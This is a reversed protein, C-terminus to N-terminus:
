GKKFFEIESISIPASEPGNTALIRITLSDIKGATVSTFTQADKVDQVDITISTGDAFDFALKSPRRLDTFTDASGPHVIVAGLDFTEKFKVTFTSVKDNGQWDTNTFTDFMQKVPHGDVESSATVETPRIPDLKPNVFRQIKDVIGPIGGSVFSNVTGQVSPIALYGVLGLGVLAALVTRVLGLGTFAGKLLGGGKKKSGAEMSGIREGATYQKAKKGGGFIRRWWPLKTAEVTRAEALSAGCRRCFKRAPDNPEGCSGCIRDGVQAVRQEATAAPKPKPAVAATPQRAAPQEGAAEPKRAAPQVAAPQAAAPQPILPAVPVPQAPQAATPQGWTTTPAVPAAQTAP